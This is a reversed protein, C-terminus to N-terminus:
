DASKVSILAHIRQLVSSLWESQIIWIAAIGCTMEFFYIWIGRPAVGMQVVANATAGGWLASLLPNSTFKFVLAESGLMALVLVFMGFFVVFYQGTYFFLALAGPIETFQFKSQDVIGFYVPRSIEIYLTDKGIERRETIGQVFLDLGKKPYASVAMVGEVGIWRDVAFRAFGSAGGEVAMGVPTVNFYYFNRLTNVLPNALIFLVVFAMCVKAINERQWGSVLNRIKYLALFQPVVHFIYSGRSLISVTSTFAELLVFYVVLSINKGLVVDWWLLTAVAFTLGYGILWSIVANLPWMLITGPVLGIQLIGLASNIIALGICVFMLATWMWRRIPPYWPPVRSREANHALFMFSNTGGAQNYFIRGAIVGLGGVIAVILVEDWAAQSKDFLGVSEGYPYDILTHVSVKFWFGLWLMIVLFLYGYSIQRYLGSILMVLFVVSFMTYILWSGPYHTVGGVFLAVWGCLLLWKM